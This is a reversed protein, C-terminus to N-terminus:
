VEKEKLSFYSMMWFVPIIVFFFSFEALKPFWHNEGIDHNLPFVPRHYPQGFVEARFPPLLILALIFSLFATIVIITIVRIVIKVFSANNYRISGYAFISILIMSIHLILSFQISSNKGIFILILSNSSFSINLLRIFYYGITYMVFMLIPFVVMSIIFKSCIKEIATAPLSLYSVRESSKRMEIFVLSGIIVSCVILFFVFQYYVQVVDHHESTLLNISNFIAGILFITGIIKLTVNGLINKFDLTLLYRLRNLSFEM